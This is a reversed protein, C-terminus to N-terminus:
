DGFLLFLPFGPLLAPVAWADWALAAPFLLYAWAATDRRTLAGSYFRADSPAGDVRELTFGTHRGDHVDVDIHLAPGAVDPTTGGSDGILLRVPTLGDEVRVAPDLRDIPFSEVTHGAAPALDALRIAAARTTQGLPEDHRNVTEARYRLWLQQGDTNAATYEIVMERRRGASLLAGTACGDFTVVAVLAALWRLVLRLTNNTCPVMM